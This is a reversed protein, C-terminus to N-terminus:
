ITGSCILNNPEHHIFLSLLICCAFGVALGFVNIFSFVKNKRIKRLALKYFNSSM